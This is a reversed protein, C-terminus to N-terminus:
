AAEKAKHISSSQESVTKEREVALRARGGGSLDELGADAVMVSDGYRGQARLSEVEGIYNFGPLAALQMRALRAGTDTAFIWLVFGAIALRLLGWKARWLGLVLGIM